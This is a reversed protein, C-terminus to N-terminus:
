ILKIHDTIYSYLLKGVIGLVGGSVTVALWKMISVHRIYWRHVEKIMQDHELLMKKNDEADEDNNKSSVEVISKWNRLEDVEKEIGNIKEEDVATEVSKIRAYLGKDPDYLVDHIEDVKTVLQEQSEEIKEIKFMLKSFGGNMAPAALIRNQMEVLQRHTKEIANIAKESVDTIDKEVDDISKSKGSAVSSTLNKNSIVKEAIKKRPM